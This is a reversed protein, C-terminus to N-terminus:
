LGVHMTFWLANKKQKEFNEGFKSLTKDDFYHKISTEHKQIYKATVSSCNLKIYM